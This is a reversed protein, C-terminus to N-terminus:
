QCLTNEAISYPKGNVLLQDDEMELRFEQPFPGQRIVLTPKGLIPNISWRAPPRPMPAVPVTVWAAGNWVTQQKPAAPQTDAPKENAVTGNICLNIPKPLLKGRAVPNEPVLSKGAVRSYWYNIMESHDIDVYQISDYMTKFRQKWDNWYDPRAAAIVLFNAGNFGFYGGFVGRIKYEGIRGKVPVLVSSGLGKGSKEKGEVVLDIADVDDFGGYEGKLDQRLDYLRVGFVPKILVSATNDATSFVTYGRWQSKEALEDDLNISIGISKDIFNAANGTGIFCGLGLVIGSLTSIFRRM